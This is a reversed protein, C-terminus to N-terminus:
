LRDQFPIAALRTTRMKRQILLLVIGTLSILVTIMLLWWFVGLTFGGYKGAPQFGRFWGMEHYDLFFYPFTNGQSFVVGLAGLSLSFVLYCAPPVLAYLLDSKKPFWPTDFLIFDSIALAPVLYHPFFNSIELLDMGEGRMAFTPTLMTAMVVCTLTISVTFAFKIIYMRPQLKRGKVQFVAFILCCFGIWLNSQVTFFLFASVSMFSSGALIATIGIIMSLFIFAKLTVSAITKKYSAKHLGATESM